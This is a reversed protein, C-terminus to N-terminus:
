VQPMYLAKDPRKKLDAHLDVVILAPQGSKEDMVPLRIVCIAYARSRWRFRNEHITPKGTALATKCQEVLAAAYDPYPMSSVRRGTLDIGGKNTAIVAYIRYVFDSGDGTPDLLSVRGLLNGFDEPPFDSRAPLGSQALEHWRDLLFRAPAVAPADATLSIASILGGDNKFRFSHDNM